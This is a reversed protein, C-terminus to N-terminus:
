PPALLPVNGLLTSAAAIAVVTGAVAESSGVGEFDRVLGRNGTALRASLLALNVIM